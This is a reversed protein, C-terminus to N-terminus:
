EIKVEAGPGAVDVVTRIGDRATGVAYRGPPLPAFRFLGPEPSRRAEALRGALLRVLEDSGEPVAYIGRSTTARVTLDASGLDAVADPGRIEVTAVPGDLTLLLYRGPIVGRAVLPGAGKLDHVSFLRDLGVLVGGVPQTYPHGGSELRLRVEPLGPGIEVEGAEGPAVRVGVYRREPFVLGRVGAEVRDFSFRGQDDTTTKRTRDLALAVGAVPVGAADVIRGRLNGRPPLRVRAADEIPVTVPSWDPHWFTLRRGEGRVAFRGSADTRAGDKIRKEEFPKFPEDGRARVQDGFYVLAGEIAKGDAGDVYGVVQPGSAAALDVEVRGGPELSVVRSTRVGQRIDTTWATVLASSADPPIEIEVELAGSEAIGQVYGGGEVQFSVTFRELPRGETLDTARAVITGTRRKAMVPAPAESEPPPPEAIRAPVAPAGRPAEATAVPALVPAKPEASDRATPGESKLEGPAGSSLPPEPSRGGFAAWLGLGGVSIFIAAAALKGKGAMAIGGGTGALAAAGERGAFPLLAVGWARRDGGHDRDLRERLRALGRKVHTKVTEVPEGLRAAIERPPLDEYFRLLIAGRYPEELALVAEVVRRRVSEREVVEATSPVGESRAAAAERAARRSAGRLAKAALNRVVAALWARPRAADLPPRSLAALFAQQVVDDALEPDWLLSRALGRVFDGHALLSEPSAPAAGSM